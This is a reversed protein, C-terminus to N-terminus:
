LALNEAKFPLMHVSVVNKLSSLPRGSAGWRQFPSETSASAHVDLVTRVKDRQLPPCLFDRATMHTQQSTCASETIVNNIHLHVVQGLSFVCELGHAPFTCPCVWSDHWQRSWHQQSSILNQSMSALLEMNLWTCTCNM